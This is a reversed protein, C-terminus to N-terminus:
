LPGEQDRPVPPVPPVPPLPAQSACLSKWTRASHKRWVPALYGGTSRAGPPSLTPAPPSHGQLQFSPLFLPTRDTSGGGASPHLKMWPPRSKRLGGLTAFPESPWWMCTLACLYGRAQGHAQTTSIESNPFTDSHPSWQCNPPHKSQTAYIYGPTDTFCHTQGIHAHKHM